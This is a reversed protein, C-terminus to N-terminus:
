ADILGRRLVVIQLCTFEFGGQRSMGRANTRERQRVEVAVAIEIQESATLNNGAM